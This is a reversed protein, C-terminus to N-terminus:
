FSIADVTQEPREHELTREKNQGRQQEYSKSRFESLVSKCRESCEAGFTQLYNFNNKDMEAQVNQSISKQVAEQSEKDTVFAAGIECAALYKGLYDVPSTTNTADIVPTDKKKEAQFKEFNELEKVARGKQQDLTPIAQGEPMIANLKEQEQPQISKEKYSKVDGNTVSLFEIAKKHEYAIVTLYNDKQEPTAKESHYMARYKNIKQFRDANLKALAIEGKPSRPKNNEDFSFCDAVPFEKFVNPKYKGNEDKSPPITIDLNRADKKIRIGIRNAQDFTMVERGKINEKEFFNQLLIQNSGKIVTGTIANSIPPKTSIVIKGDKEDGGLYVATGNVNDDHFSHCNAKVAVTHWNEKPVTTGNASTNVDDSM